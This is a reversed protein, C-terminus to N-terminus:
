LHASIISQIQCWCIKCVGKICQLQRCLPPAKKTKSPDSSHVKAHNLHIALSDCRVGPHVWPGQHNGHTPGPCQPPALTHILPYALPTTQCCTMSHSITKWNRTAREPMQLIYIVQMHQSSVFCFYLFLKPIRHSTQPFCTQCHM